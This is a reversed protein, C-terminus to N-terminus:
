SPVTVFRHGGNEIFHQYNEIGLEYSTELCDAVFSPAVVLVNKIGQHPLKVMIDATSPTLWEGPGFKSQFSLLHPLNGLQDMILDTTLYCRTAYPDGKQTYRKPIGHYTFVIQDYQGTDWYRKIKEAMVKIYTPHTCFDSILHLTPIKIRRFYFRNIDDMVSGVTTTSYQPYLPIITLDDIKDTEFATLQTAIDPDSYSMAYRVQYSAGLRAQLQSAQLQTYHLLPSGSENSWIMQYMEASHKPRNPLIMLNLIPLWQWRPMDIVRSDSL